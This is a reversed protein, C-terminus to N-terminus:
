QKYVWLVFAAVALSWLMSKGTMAWDGYGTQAGMIKEAETAYGAKNPRLQQTDRTYAAQKQHTEQIAAKQEALAQRLEELKQQVESKEADEKTILTAQPTTSPTAVLVPSQPLNNTTTSPAAAAPVPVVSSKGFHRYM